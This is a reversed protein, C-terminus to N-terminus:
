RPVALAETAVSRATDVVLGVVADQAIEAESILAGPYDYPDAPGITQAADRAIYVVERVSLLGSFTPHDHHHAVAEIVTAPMGWLGLLCAGVEGHTYGLVEREVEFVPQGREASVELVRALDAPRSSSLLVLGIDVLLAALFAESVNSRGAIRRAVHSVGMAHMQVSQRAFGPVLSSFSRATEAELVLARITTTGLLSVAEELRTVERSLAFFSSNVLRLVQSSIAADSGIVDAIELAGSNPNALVLSMRQWLEPPSPLKGSAGGVVALLSPNTIIDHTAVARDCVDAIIGADARVSLVQHVASATRVATWVEQEPVLAVRVTGPSLATAEDFLQDGVWRATTDFLVIDLEGDALASRAAREDTVVTVSWGARIDRLASARELDDTAVLVNHM